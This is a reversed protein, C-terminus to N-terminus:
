ARVSKSLAKKIADFLEEVDFPKCIYGDAGMALATEIEKKETSATVFIFPINSSLPDAKLRKFVEFGDMEPMLIDCLIVSPHQEVALAFGEKGNSAALVQCDMLVLIEMLNERIELNDEIVLVKAM